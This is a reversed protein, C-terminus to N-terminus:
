PQIYDGCCDYGSNGAPAIAITLMRAENPATLQFTPTGSSLGATSQKIYGAGGSVTGTLAAVQVVFGILVHRGTEHTVSPTESVGTASKHGCGGDYGTVSLDIDKTFSNNMTYTGIANCAAAEIVMDGNGTALASTTITTGSVTSGASGGTLTTQNVNQLFVSSYTVSTPTGSWTPTFTGPPSTAANIGADNLIFAAVYTRNSGSGGSQEIVKTMSQGGYSVATLTPNNGPTAHAIFVLARNTGSEKAHTLGTVWLGLIAVPVASGGSKDMTIATHGSLGPNGPEPLSNIDSDDFAGLRLILCNPVTTTVAPSTPTISTQNATASTNIPNAANHGSFRMMWGYAKQGGTWTFDYSAPESAGAIKRWAGLTVATGYATCDIQTWGSPPSLSGSTDGDTAVATILLDNQATGSPKQIVITTNSDSPVPTESFTWYRLINALQAIETTTLARNYLRVDDITGDFSNAGSPYAGINLSYNSTTNKKVGTTGALTGNVYVSTGNADGVGCIHVWQGVTFVNSVTIDDSSGVDARVYLNANSQYYEFDHNTSDTGLLINEKLAIQNPKAWWSITYNAGLQNSLNAVRVFDDAGDFTLANGIQGPVWCGPPTMNVLTGNNGKSSSDTATTGSTEDLKWCGVLGGNYANTRLYVSATFTKDQGLAASNTLTTEAKVFRISNVDTTTNTFDNGDYCTFQL